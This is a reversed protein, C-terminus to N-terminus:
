PCNSSSMPGGSNFCQPPKPQPQNLSQNADWVSGAAQGLLNGVVPAAKATEVQGATSASLTGRNLTEALSKTAASANTPAAYLPGVAAKMNSEVVEGAASGVGSSIAGLAAGTLVAKSDPLTGSSAVSSLTAQGAGIAAGAVANVAIRAGSIAVSAAIVSSAGGSLFGAAAAIGVQQIDIKRTLAYQVGASVAAGAVAGVLCWPCEGSADTKNLPDNYVYAYLNLDDDYGVPDTQLFRGLRPDYLRAKYYYVDLEPLWAQGTYQFRGVNSSAPVGYEDYRNIGTANGSADAVSEISGQYNAQLSRRASSSVAAGEYWILPDDDKPGHVYRRQLAGSENYEAVLEDGDYLFQTTKSSGVIQFLRGLPDYTLTATHAGSASLLRNEVDYSYITSGDSTLNGNLDYDFRAGGVNSYQNLGNPSYGRSGNAYSTFAYADNSLTQSSIQNAPNYALTTTIDPGTGALNDTWNWIRTVADYSYTTGVGGRTQGSRLGMPYYTQGVITTGSNEQIGSLRDLGDYQYIFYSTDPHTVSTRDGDPDYGHSVTRSYGGMYTTTSKQRGFGDYVNTVGQGTASGFRAYTQLGRLDYGYYVDTATGPVDKLSMRNLADYQYAINQADRKRLSTRNGNDDYGYTEYDTTSNAGATNLATTQSAPNFASPRTTSPYYWGNLRDHGDYTLKTRNGNADIVYERKSDPTYSYTAYAEEDSTGVARRTQIVRNLDDYVNVTIRDPGYAGQSGLTCASSPPSGFASPNMRVATCTLRDFADYSFQTFSTVVGNTGAVTETLKRGNADYSYTVTKSISFGSWNAPAVTDTQWSALVGTEVKQLRANADYTNRTALFNSQGSPAATITGVLLGGDQYRYGTVYPAPATQASAPAMFGSAGLVSGILWAFVLPNREVKVRGIRASSAIDTHRM